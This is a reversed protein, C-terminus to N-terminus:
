FSFSVVTVAEIQAGRDLLAIVEETDGERAADTLQETLSDAMNSFSHRTEPGCSRNLVRNLVEPGVGHM